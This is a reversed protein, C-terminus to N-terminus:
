PNAQTEQCKKDKKIQKALNKIKQIERFERLRFSEERTMYEMDESFRKEMEDKQEEYLKLESSTAYNNKNKKMAEIEAEVEARVEQPTRDSPSKGVNEDFASAFERMRIILYDEEIQPLTANLYREDVLSYNYNERWANVISKSEKYFESLEDSFEINESEYTGENEKKIVSHIETILSQIQQRKERGQFPQSHM